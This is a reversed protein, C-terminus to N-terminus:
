CVFLSKLCPFSAGQCVGKLLFGLEGGQEAAPFLREM